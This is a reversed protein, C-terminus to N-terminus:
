CERLTIWHGRKEEVVSRNNQWVTEDCVSFYLTVCSFDDKNPFGPFALRFARDNDIGLSTEDRRPKHIDMHMSTAAGVEHISGLFRDNGRASGMSIVSRGRKERCGRGTGFFLDHGHDLCARTELRLEAVTRSDSTNM